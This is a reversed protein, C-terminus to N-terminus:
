IVKALKLLNASIKLNQAKSVSKNVIFRLKGNHLYFSICAGEKAFKEDETVLLIAKGAIKKNISTFLKGQNSPLFIVQCEAWDGEGEIKKVTVKGQKELYTKMEMYIKSNGVIGIAPNEYTNPWEVYRIFNGIFLAHYKNLNQSYASSIFFMGLIISLIYHKAKSMPSKVQTLHLNTSLQHISEM